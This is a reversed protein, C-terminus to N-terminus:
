SEVQFSTRRFSHYESRHRRYSQFHDCSSWRRSSFLFLISCFQCYDFRAHRSSYKGTFMSRYVGYIAASTGVLLKIGLGLGKPTGKALRSAFDNLKEAMITTLIFELFDYLRCIDLLLVRAHCYEAYDNEYRCLYQKYKEIM